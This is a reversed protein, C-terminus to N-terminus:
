SCLPPQFLFRQFSFLNFINQVQGFQPRFESYDTEIRNIQPLNYALAMQTQLQVFPGFKLAAFEDDCAFIPGLLILIQSIQESQTLFIIPPYTKQKFDLSVNCIEVTRIELINSM